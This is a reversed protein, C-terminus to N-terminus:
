YRWKMRNGAGAFVMQHAKVLGSALDLLGAVSKGPDFGAHCAKRKRDVSSDLCSILLRCVERFTDHSHPAFTEYDQLSIDAPDMPKQVGPM